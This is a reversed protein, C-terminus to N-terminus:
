TSTPSERLSLRPWRHRRHSRLPRSAFRRFDDSDAFNARDTGTLGTNATDCGAALAVPRNQSHAFCGAPLRRAAVLRRSATLTVPAFSAIRSVKRCPRFSRTAFRRERGLTNAADQSQDETRISQRRISQRPWVLAARRVVRSSRIRASSPDCGRPSAPERRHPPNGRHRRSAVDAATTDEKPMTRPREGSRQALRRRRSVPPRPRNSREHSRRGPIPLPNAVEAIWAAGETVQGRQIARRRQSARGKQSAWQSGSGFSQTRGSGSEPSRPAFTEICRTSADSRCMRAALRSLSRSVAVWQLRVRRQRERCRSVVARTRRM